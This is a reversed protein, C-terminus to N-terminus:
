SEICVCLLTRETNFQWRKRERSSYIQNLHCSFHHHSFLLAKLIKITVNGSNSCKAFRLYNWIIMYQTEKTFIPKKGGELLKYMLIYTGAAPHSSISERLRKSENLWKHKERWKTRQRHKMKNETYRNGEMQRNVRRRQMLSKLLKSSLYIYVTCWQPKKIQRDLNATFSAREAAWRNKERSTFYGFSM